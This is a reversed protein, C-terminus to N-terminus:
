FRKPKRSRKLGSYGGYSPGQPSPSTGAAPSPSSGAAPSPSSEADVGQVALKFTEIAAQVLAAINYKGAPLALTFLATLIDADTAVAEAVDEVLGTVQELTKGAPV